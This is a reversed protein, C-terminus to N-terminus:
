QPLKEKPIAGERLIRGTDPDFITSPESSPLTGGDIAISVGELNLGELSTAPEDGSINASTSTIAGGFEDCLRRATECSPCRVCLKNSGATLLPSLNGAIPLLLSLPGPWFREICKQAQESLGGVLANLQALNSVIVLVSKGADRKKVEFLRKLANEDLPNVGLGYVTETPYAVVEGNRIAKSAARISDITTDLVKM